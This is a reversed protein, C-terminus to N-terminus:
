RSLESITLDTALRLKLEEIKERGSAMNNDVVPKTEGKSVASM